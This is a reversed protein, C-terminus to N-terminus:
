CCHGREYDIFLMATGMRGSIRACWRQTVPRSPWPWPSAPRTCAAADERELMLRWAEVHLGRAKDLAPPLGECWRWRRASWASPTATACCRSAAAQGPPCAAMCRGASRRPGAGTARAATPRWTTTAAARHLPRDRRLGRALAAAGRQRGAPWPAGGRALARAGRPPRRAPHGTRGCGPGLAHDGRPGAGAARPPGAACRADARPEPQYAALVSGTCPRRRRRRCRRSWRSAAWNTATPWRRATRWWCGAPSRRSWDDLAPRLLEDVLWRETRGPVVAVAAAAGARGAAAARYRALVVDQVSQPVAAGASGDRLLETVFFANGRTLRARRRRHPRGPAGADGRRRREAAAGATPARPRRCSASCAACRTRATVEDDRYSIALLAHTREIRRGLYKLLDLTAEDAWHADEVVM